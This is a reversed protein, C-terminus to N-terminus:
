RDQDWLAQDHFLLYNRSGIDEEEGGCRSGPPWLRVVM